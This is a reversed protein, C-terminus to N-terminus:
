PVSARYDASLRSARSDAELPTMMVPAFVVNALFHIKLFKKFVRCLSQTLYNLKRM